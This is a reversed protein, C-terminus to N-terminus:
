FRYQGSLARLLTASSGKPGAREEDSLLVLPIGVILSVVITAAGGAATAGGIDENSSRGTGLLALGTAVSGAGLGGGLGLVMWGAARRGERSGTEEAAANGTVVLTVAAVLLGCWGANKSKFAM